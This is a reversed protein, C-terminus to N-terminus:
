PKRRKKGQPDIFVTGSPLKAFDAANQVRPTDGGGGAPGAGPITFGLQQYYDMDHRGKEAARQLKALVVAPQDGKNILFTNASEQEGETLSAGFLSHRIESNLRGIFAQESAYESDALGPFIQEVGQRFADWKGWQGQNQRVHEAFKEMRPLAYSLSAFQQREDKTLRQQPPAKAPSPYSAGARPEVFTQVTKGDPGVTEIRQLNPERPARPAVYKPVGASLEEPTVRKTIPRGAADVTEVDKGEPEKPPPAAVIEGKEPDYLGHAGVPVLKKEQKPGFVEGAKALIPRLKPDWQESPELGMRAATPGLSERVAPWARALMEDDLGSLFQATKGFRALEQEPDRQPGKKLALVANTYQLADSPGRVKQMAGFLAMPDSGDWGEIAALTAAERKAMEKKQEREQFYGAVAQGAQQVGQALMDSSALHHQARAQGQMGLLDGISYGRPAGYSARPPQAYSGRYLALAAREDQTPM